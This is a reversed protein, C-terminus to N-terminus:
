KYPYLFYNKPGNDLPLSKIIEVHGLGCISNIIPEEYRRAKKKTENEETAQRPWKKM